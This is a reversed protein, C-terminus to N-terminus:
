RYRRMFAPRSTQDQLWLHALQLKWGPWRRVTAFSPRCGTFRAELQHFLDILLEHSFPIAGNQIKNTTM